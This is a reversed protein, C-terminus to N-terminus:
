YGKLGGNRKIIDIASDLSEIRSQKGSNILYQKASKIVDYIKFNLDGFLDEDKVRNEKSLYYFVHIHYILADNKVEM